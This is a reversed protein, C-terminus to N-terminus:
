HHQRRRENTEDPLEAFIMKGRETQIVQTVSVQLTENLHRRGNEVVVMTGDDLYAIGQGPQNGERIVTVNLGEGPLVNPKLALALDNINLVSVGQLSAVRNLNHDNTVIDGGLAKALRILRSDVEEKTDPAHRDHIGVELPFDAQMLRLVDLGRKGRQRRLSDSSDAIYQLEELVFQPVYIQGEVFGTRAVDYIRGDIIVNTDLIKISRRRSKGRNKQWPLVDGMSRLAYVSVASVGLMLALTAITAVYVGQVTFLVMFPVTILVGVFIGVYITVKDGSDMNDWRYSMRDSVKYLLTGLGTGVMFGLVTMAAMTAVNHSGGHPDSLHLAEYLLELLAPGWIGVLVAGVAGVLIAVFTRAKIM